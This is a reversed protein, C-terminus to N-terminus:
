SDVPSVILLWLWTVSPIEVTCESTSQPGHLIAICWQYFIVSTAPPHFLTGSGSLLSRLVKPCSLVLPTNPNSLSWFNQDFIFFSSYNKRLHRTRLRRHHFPDQSKSDLPVEVIHHHDEMACRRREKHSHILSLVFVDQFVNDVHRAVLQGIISARVHTFPTFTRSQSFFLFQGCRLSTRDFVFLIQINNPAQFVQSHKHRRSVWCIHLAFSFVSIINSVVDLIDHLPDDKILLVLSHEKHRSSVPFPTSSRSPLIHTQTSIDELWLTQSKTFFFLYTIPRKCAPKIKTVHIDVPLHEWELRKKMMM